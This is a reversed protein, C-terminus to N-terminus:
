VNGLIRWRGMRWTRWTRCTTWAASPTGPRQVTVPLPKATGTPKVPVGPSGTRGSTLLTGDTSDKSVEPSDAPTAPKFTDARTRRHNSWCAMLQRHIGTLEWLDRHCATVGGWVGKAMRSWGGTVMRLWGGTAMRSWGGTGMRSWGGAAVWLWGGTAVWSWGHGGEAMWSCAGDALGKWGRLVSRNLSHSVQLASRLASRIQRGKKSARPSRWGGGSGQHIM